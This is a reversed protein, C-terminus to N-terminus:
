GEPSFVERKNTKKVPHHILDNKITDHTFIPKFVMQGIYQKLDTNEIYSTYTLNNEVCLSAFIIEHFNFTQNTNKYEVIYHILNKSLRCLPNFSQRPNKLNTVYADKWKPWSPYHTQPRIKKSIFDSDITDCTKIFSILSTYDKSYVDDEIFFFYDYQSTLNNEIIHYFAKDWASPKKIHAGNTLNIFGKDKLEFDKDVTCSDCIIISAISNDTLKSLFLELNDSINYCLLCVFPSKM